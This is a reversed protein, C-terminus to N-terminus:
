ESTHRIQFHTTRGNSRTLFYERDDMFPHKLDFRAGEQDVGLARLREKVEKAQQLDVLDQCHMRERVYEEIGGQESVQQIRKSMNM